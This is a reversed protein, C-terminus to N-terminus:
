RGVLPPPKRDIRAEYKPAADKPCERAEEWLWLEAKDDQVRWHGVAACVDARDIPRWAGTIWPPDNRPRVVDREEVKEVYTERAPIASPIADATVANGDVPPMEFTVRKAGAGRADRAVYVAQLQYGGREKPPCSVFFLVSKAYRERLMEVKDTVPACNHLAVIPGPLSGVTVSRPESPKAAVPQATSKKPRAKKQQAKKGADSKKAKPKAKSAAAPADGGTQAHLAPTACLLLAAAAAALFGASRRESRQAM